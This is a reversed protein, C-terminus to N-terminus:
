LERNAPGVMAPGAGEASGISEEVGPNSSIVRQELVESDVIRWRGESEAVSYRARYGQTRRHAHGWHIVAGDVEWRTDVAFALRGDDLQGVDAVDVSQRRVAEVRSVAGGEAENVLSRYIQGYLDELLEGAVSRELADYVKSEDDFRFARYINEHLPEFVAVAEEDTPLTVSEVGMNQQVAGAVLVAAAFARLAGHARKGQRFANISLLLFGAGLVYLGVHYRPANSVVQPEPVALFVEDATGLDGHWVQTPEAVTFNLPYDYGGANLQATIEIPPSAPGLRQVTDPPFLGWGLSVREPDSLLPYSYEVRVKMLARAGSLPFQPLFEELADVFRWDGRVPDLEVGDVTVSNHEAFAEFLAKALPEREVEAVWEAAERPVAVVADAFAVNADARVRVADREIWFRLDVDPGDTPHNAAPADARHPAEAAAGTPAGGSLAAALLLLAFAVPRFHRRATM